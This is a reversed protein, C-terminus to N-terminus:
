AELLISRNQVELAKSVKLQKRQELHSKPEFLEWQEIILWIILFVMLKYGM